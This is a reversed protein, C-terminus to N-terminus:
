PVFTKEANYVYPASPHLLQRRARRKAGQSSRLSGDARCYVILLGIGFFANRRNESDEPKHPVDIANAYMM